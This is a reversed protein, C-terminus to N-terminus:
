TNLHFGLFAAAALYMAHVNFVNRMYQLIIFAFSDLNQPHTHAASSPEPSSFVNEDDATAPQTTNHCLCM